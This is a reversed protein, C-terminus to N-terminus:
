LNVLLWVVALLPLVLLAIRCAVVLSASGFVLAVVAFAILNRM